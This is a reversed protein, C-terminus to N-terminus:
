SASFTFHLLSPHHLCVVLCRVRNVGTSVANGHVCTTGQYGFTNNRQKAETLSRVHQGNSCHGEGWWAWACGPDVPKEAMPM